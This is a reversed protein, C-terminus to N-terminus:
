KIDSTNALEDDPRYVGGTNIVMALESLRSAGMRDKVPVRVEVKHEEVVKKNLARIEADSLTKDWVRLGPRKITQFVSLLFMHMSVGNVKAFALILGSMIVLVNILVMLETIPVISYVIFALFFTAMLIIFQRGTVPGIIKAEMDLFQPVVFQQPM